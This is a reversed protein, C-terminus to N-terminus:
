VAAGNTQSALENIRRISRLWLDGVHEGEDPDAVTHTLLRRRGSYLRVCWPTLFCRWEAEAWLLRARPQCTLVNEDVPTHREALM